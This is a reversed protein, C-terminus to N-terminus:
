CIKQNSNICWIVKYGDGFLKTLTKQYFKGFSKTFKVLDNPPYFGCLIWTSSWWVFYKEKMVKELKKGEM